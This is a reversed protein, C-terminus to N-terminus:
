FEARSMQEIFYFEDGCNWNSGSGFWFWDKIELITQYPSYKVPFKYSQFRGCITIEEHARIELFIGSTKSFNGNSLVQFCESMHILLLLILSNFM